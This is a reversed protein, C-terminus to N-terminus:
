SSLSVGFIISCMKLDFILIKLLIAVMAGIDSNLCVVRGSHEYGSKPRRLREAQLNESSFTSFFYFFTNLFLLFFTNLFFTFFTNLMTLPIVLGKVINVDEM